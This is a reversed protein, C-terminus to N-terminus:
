CVMSFPDRPSMVNYRSSKLSETNVFDYGLTYTAPNTFTVERQLCSYHKTEYITRDPEITTITRLAIARLVDFINFQVVNRVNKLCRVCLIYRNLTLNSPLM